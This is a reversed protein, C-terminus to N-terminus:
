ESEDISESGKIPKMGECEFYYHKGEDDQEMFCRILKRDRLGLRNAKRAMYNLDDISLEDHATVVHENIMKEGIPSVYIEVKKKESFVKECWLESIFRDDEYVLDNMVDLYYKAMNDLDPKTMRPRGIYSKLNSKAAGGMHFRLSVSLPERLRQLNGHDRMQRMIESRDLGMEKAQGNYIRVAVGHRVARPRQKSKPQGYLVFKTKKLM